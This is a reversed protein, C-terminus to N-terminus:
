LHRYPSKVITFSVTLIFVLCLIRFYDLIFGPMVIRNRSIGPNLCFLSTIDLVGSGAKVKISHHLHAHPVMLIPNMVIIKVMYTRSLQICRLSM